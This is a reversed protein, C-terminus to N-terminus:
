PGRPSPESAREPIGPVAERLGLAGLTAEPVLAALDLGALEVLWVGHPHRDGVLRAVELALRTKGSGGAGTLTVLRHAALLDAVDRLERDRGVFLTGPAPLTCTGRTTSRLPPFIAALGEAVVQQLHMAQVVDRLRHSGLDLLTVGPPLAAMLEVVARSVLIQGGHAVCLIRATHHLALGVRDDGVEVVEGAHLAMRVRVVANGPWREAALARQGAVAAAVAGTPSDFSFFCADGETGFCVGGHAAVSASLLARHRELLPRYAAGLSELLGTSSEVDTFLLTVVRARQM